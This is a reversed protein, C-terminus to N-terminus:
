KHYIFYPYILLLIWIVLGCLLLFLTTCSIYRPGFRDLLIGIPIQLLGYSFNYLSQGFGHEVATINFHIGMNQELMGITSRIFLQLVFFMAAISWLLWPKFYFLKGKTNFNSERLNNSNNAM